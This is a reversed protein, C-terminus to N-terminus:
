IILELNQMGIGEKQFINSILVQANEEGFIDKIKELTL